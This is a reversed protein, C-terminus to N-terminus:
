YNISGTQEASEANLQLSLGHCGAVFAVYLVRGVFICYHFLFSNRKVLHGHKAAIFARFTYPLGVAYGSPLRPDLACAIFIDLGIYSFFFRPILHPHLLPTDSVFTQAYLTLIHRGPTGYWDHVVIAYALLNWHRGDIM